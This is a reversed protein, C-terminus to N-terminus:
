RTPVSLCVDYPFTACDCVSYVCQLWGAQMPFFRYFTNQYRAQVADNSALLFRLEVERIDLSTFELEVYLTKSSIACDHSFTDSSFIMGPPPETGVELEINITKTQEATEVTSRYILGYRSPGDCGDGFDTEFDTDDLEEDPTYEACPGLITISGGGIIPVQRRRQAGTIPSGLVRRVAERVRRFGEENFGYLPM